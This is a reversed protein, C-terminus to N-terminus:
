LRPICLARAPSEGGERGQATSCVKPDATCGVIGIKTYGSPDLWTEPPPPSTKRVFRSSLLYSVVRKTHRWRSPFSWPISGVGVGRPGAIYGPGAGMGHEHRRGRAIELPFMIRIYVLIGFPPIGNCPYSWKVRLVVQGNMCAM